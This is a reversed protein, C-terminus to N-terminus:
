ARKRANTVVDSDKKVFIDCELRLDIMSIDINTEDVYFVLRRGPYLLLGQYKLYFKESQQKFRSDRTQSIEDYFTFVNAIPYGTAAYLIMYIRTKNQLQNNSDDRCRISIHHNTSPRQSFGNIAIVTSHERAQNIIELFRGSEGLKLPYKFVIDTNRDTIIQPSKGELLGWNGRHMEEVFNDYTAFVTSETSQM